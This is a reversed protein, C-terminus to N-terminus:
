RGISYLSFTLPDGQERWFYVGAPDSGPVVYRVDHAIARPLGYPKALRMLDATTSIWYVYSADVTLAWTGTTGIVQAFGGSKPLKVVPNVGTTLGLNTYYVNTSDVAIVAPCNIGTKLTIPLGGLKNVKRALGSNRGCGNAPNPLTEDLWYLHTGDVAMSTVFTARALEIPTRSDAAIKSIRHFYHDNEVASAAIYVGSADATLAWVDGIPAVLQAEGGATSLKYVNAYDAYYIFSGGLAAAYPYGVISAIKDTTGDSRRVRMVSMTQPTNHEDEATFVMYYVYSADQLTHSPPYTEDLVERESPVGFLSATGESVAASTTASAPEEDLCGAALSALGLCGVLLTTRMISFSMM